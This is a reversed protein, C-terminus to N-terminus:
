REGTAGSLADEYRWATYGHPASGLIERAAEVFDVSFGVLREGSLLGYAYAHFRDSPTEGGITPVIAGARVTAEPRTIVWEALEASWTAVGMTVTRGTTRDEAVITRTPLNTM